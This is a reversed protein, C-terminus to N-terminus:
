SKVEWGWEMREFAADRALEEREDESMSQWDEDDVEMENIIKSGIKDTQIWYRLIVENEGEAPPSARPL